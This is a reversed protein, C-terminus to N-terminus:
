YEKEDIVKGMEWPELGKLDARWERCKEKIPCNECAEQSSCVKMMEIGTM